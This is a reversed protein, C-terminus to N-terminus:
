ALWGLHNENIQSNKLSLMVRFRGTDAYSSEVLPKEAKRTCLASVM